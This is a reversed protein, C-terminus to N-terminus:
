DKLKQLLVKREKSKFSSNSNDLAELHKIAADFDEMKIDILASYWFSESQYDFNMKSLKKLETNANAQNGSNLLSLAYYFRINPNNNTELLSKFSEAAKEYNANEYFLFAEDNENSNRVIPQEVNPYIEFYDDYLSGSNTVWFTYSLGFIVISAAAYRLWSGKYRKKISVAKDDDLNKLYDKLDQKENEFFAYNMNQYDEFQVKFDPDSELLRDFYKLNDKSLKNKFYGQILEEHTM